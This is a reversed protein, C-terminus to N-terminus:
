DFLVGSMLLIFLFGIAPVIIFLFIIFSLGFWLWKRKKTIEPFRKTIFYMTILALIISPIVGYLISAKLIEDSQLIM